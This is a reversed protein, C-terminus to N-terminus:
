AGENPPHGRPHGRSELRRRLHGTELASLALKILDDQVKLERRRLGDLVSIRENGGALGDAQDIEVAGM